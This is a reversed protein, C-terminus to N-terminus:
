IGQLTKRRIGQAKIDVLSRGAIPKNFNPPNEDM